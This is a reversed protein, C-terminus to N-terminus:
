FILEMNEKAQKETVTAVVHLGHNQFSLLHEDARYNEQWKDFREFDIMRTTAPISQWKNRQAKLNGTMFNNVENNLHHISPNLM